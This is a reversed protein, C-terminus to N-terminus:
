GVAFVFCVRSMGLVNLSERGSPAFGEMVYLAMGQAGPTCNILRQQTCGVGPIRLESLYCRDSVKFESCVFVDYNSGAVALEGLNAHLSGRICKQAQGM